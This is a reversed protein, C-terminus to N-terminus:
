SFAKAGAEAIEAPTMDRVHTALAWQHGFPDVLLGYVDGWFQEEAPMTITAGADAATQMAAHADEVYMTLTVPSGGLAEASREKGGCYEPFDDNIMVISPGIQLMAHMIRQGDPAPMRSLEVAGFAKKYFEIADSAGKVTLHAILKEMGSPIAEAM